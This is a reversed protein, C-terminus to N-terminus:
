GHPLLKLWNFYLGKLRNDVICMQGINTNAPQVTDWANLCVSAVTTQNKSEHSKM